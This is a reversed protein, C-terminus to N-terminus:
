IMKTTGDAYIRYLTSVGTRENFSEMVPHGNYWGINYRKNQKVADFKTLALLGLINSKQKGAYKEKLHFYAYSLAKQKTDFGWLHNLDRQDEITWPNDFLSKRFKTRFAPDTEM